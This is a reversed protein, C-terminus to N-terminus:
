NVTLNNIYTVGEIPIQLETEADREKKLPVPASPQHPQSNPQHKAM